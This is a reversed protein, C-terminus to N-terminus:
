EAEPFGHTECLAVLDRAFATTPRVDVFVNDGDDETVYLDVRYFGEGVPITTWFGDGLPGAPEVPGGAGDTAGLLVASNEVVEFGLSEWYDRYAAETTTEGVLGVPALRSLPHLNHRAIFDDRYTTM